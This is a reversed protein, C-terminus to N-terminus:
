ASTQMPISSTGDIPNRQNWKVIPQSPGSTPQVYTSGYSTRPDFQIEHTDMPPKLSTVRETKVPGWDPYDAEKTTRAVFPISYGLPVAEDPALPGEVEWPQYDRKYNTSKEMPMQSSILENQM